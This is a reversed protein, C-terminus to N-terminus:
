KGFKRFSPMSQSLIMLGLCIIGNIFFYINVGMRDVVQGAILLGIPMSMSQISNTLTLVRGLFQDNVKEQILATKVGRYFPISIGMIFSLGVFLYIWSPPLLGIITLGIGYLGISLSIALDKRMKFGIAALLTSGLIMGISFAMEVIGSLGFSGYFYNISIHPFLTGIPAYVIGYLGSILIVSALGPVNRMVEIGEKTDQWIHTKESQEKKIYPIKIFAITLISAAVGFVELWVLQSVNFFNFLIAALGPSALFAFSSVGQTIGAYRGLEESPVITPTLAQFAPEYFANGVARTFMVFLILPIPVQGNDGILLLLSLIGITVDAIILIKKRNHRDIYAGIIPGFIIRPLIGVITGLTLVFASQTFSTLYWVMAMMLIQSTLTSIAQGSLIIFFKKRWNEIM